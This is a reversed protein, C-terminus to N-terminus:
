VNKYDFYGLIYYLKKNEVYFENTLADTLYVINITYNYIYIIYIYYISYLLIIINQVFL